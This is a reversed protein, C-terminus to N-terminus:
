ESTRRGPGACPHHVNEPAPSIEVGETALTLSLGQTASTLHITVGNLNDLAIAGAGGVVTAGAAAAVYPGDIDQVQKLGTVSGTATYEDVGVGVLSLGSVTLPDRKGQFTLTGSGWRFGVGAAVSGGSCEILADPAQALAPVAHGFLLGFGMGLVGVTKRM